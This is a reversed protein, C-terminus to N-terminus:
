PKAKARGPRVEAPELLEPGRKVWGMAAELDRDVQLLAYAPKRGAAFRAGDFKAGVFKV